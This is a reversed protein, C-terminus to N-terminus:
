EILTVFVIYLCGCSGVHITLTPDKTLEKMKHTELKLAGKILQCVCVCMSNKSSVLYDDSM